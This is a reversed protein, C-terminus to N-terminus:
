EVKYILLKASDAGKASAAVYLRNLEPVFISIKAAPGSPVKAIEEYHDPDKQSYVGIFGDGGSVYIQKTKPNYAMDDARDVSPLSAVEQGTQTDIVVLKAPKRCVVFLRHDTEDLAMPVNEKASKIDWKELLRHDKKDFVGVQGRTRLNAFMRAGDHEFRIAEVRGSDVKIEKVGKAATTDIVSILTYDMKAETGGTDAYMLHTEPDYGASDAAPLVKISNTIKYSEGSIVRVYGEKGGEEGSDTVLITNNQPVYVIQHPADFGPVSHLHKGTKLDFVEVTKHEEAALFLRNGKIDAGFHDFDGKVGPMPISTELRLPADHPAQALLAASFALTAIFLPKKL